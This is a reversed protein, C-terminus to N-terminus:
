SLVHTEGVSWVGYVDPGLCPDPIPFGLSREVRRLQDDAPEVKDRPRFEAIYGGGMDFTEGEVAVVGASANRVVLRGAGNRDATFGLPWIPVSFGGPSGILVCRDRVVLPGEIHAEMVAAQEEAHTLFLLEAAPTPAAEPADACAALFTAVASVCVLRQM